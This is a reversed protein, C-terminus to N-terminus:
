RATIACGGSEALKWLTATCGQLVRAWGSLESHSNKAGRCASSRFAQSKEESRQQFNPKPDVASPM